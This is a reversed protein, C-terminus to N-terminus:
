TESGGSRASREIVRRHTEWDPEPEKERRDCSAFFERLEERTELRSRTAGTEMKERAAERIWAALSM